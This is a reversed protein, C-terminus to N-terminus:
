LPLVLEDGTVPRCNPSCGGCDRAYRCFRAPDDHADTCHLLCSPQRTLSKIPNVGVKRREYGGNSLIYHDGAPTKPTFYAGTGHHQLKVVQYFRRFGAGSGHIHDVVHPPADGLFLVRDELDCVVSMANLGDVLRHYQAKAFGKLDAILAQPAGPRALDAWLADHLALLPEMSARLAQFREAPAERPAQEQHLLELYANLASQVGRRAELLAGRRPGLRELLGLFLTEAQAEMEQYPYLDYDFREADSGEDWYHQFFPGKGPKSRVMLPFEVQPWLVRLHAGDLPIRSGTRVFRIRRACVTLHQFLDLIQRTLRFGYSNAPAVALLRAMAGSFAPQGSKLLSWPLWATEIPPAARLLTGPEPLRLFGCFHDSHFHSVLLDTPLDDDIASRIASYAFRSKGQAPRAGRNDSGCDVILRRGETELLACDGFKVRKVRLQM